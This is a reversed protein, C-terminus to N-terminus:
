PGLAALASEISDVVRVPWGKAKWKEQAPTLRRESPIRSGDKVEVVMLRDTAIHYVLLDAVGGGLSALSQVLCGCRTLAKVVEGHNTDTRAARRM